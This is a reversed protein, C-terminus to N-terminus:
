LDDWDEFRLWLGGDATHLFISKPDLKLPGKCNENLNVRFKLLVSILALKIQTLAFRIGVCMRPGEGFPLYTFKKISTQNQKNFREPNFVEPDPFHEPDTHLAYIPIVIAMGKKIRYEYGGSILATDARCIRSVFQIPPHLRLTESVFNDLKTLSNIADTDFDNINKSLMMIEERVENQIQPHRALEHLAFSLLISSTEYGDLFFTMCHGAMEIQDYVPKGVKSQENTDILQQLFDNKRIGNKIRYDSASNIVKIFYDEVEKHIVRLKFLKGITPAVIACLISFNDWYNSGFVEGKTIAAFGPESDSFSNSKLGFACSAVTDGTYYASITKAEHAKSQNDKIYAIMKNCCSIFAPVMLKIKSSTQSPLQISRINKWGPSKAVFPNIALLPDVERAVEFDNDPYINFEKVMVRNILGPDRLILAPERLKYFGVAPLGTFTRYINRYVEGATKRMMVMDSINGFPFEPKVCPVGQKVWYIYNKTIWYYFWFAATLLIIAFIALVM